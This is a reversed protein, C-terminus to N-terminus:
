RAGETTLHRTLLGTVEGAQEVNCLHAADDVVAVAAGPIRAAIEDLHPPPTAPDDAAAIALTPARVAALDQRLDMAAIAECCGAYGEDPTTVIMRRLRAVLPPNADAYGPTLWRGVVADAVADTGETRVTAARTHWDSPEGLKASTALVALRDVRDPHHAAVWLAVMGGLSLGVLHAHALGLEDLLAIVDTGLDDLAYPGPPAPSGGHGRLDARVVRFRAALAETQPDWMTLESGLSGLLVVAPAEPDGAVEHHLGVPERADPHDPM